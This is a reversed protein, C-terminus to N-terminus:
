AGEPHQRRAEAIAKPHGLYRVGWILHTCDRLESSHAADRVTRRPIGIANSVDTISFLDDHAQQNLWAAIRKVAPAGQEALPKGGLKLVVPQKPM